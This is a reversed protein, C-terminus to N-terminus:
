THTRQAHPIRRISKPVYIGVLTVAGAVRLEPINSHLQPSHRQWSSKNLRLSNNVDDAM